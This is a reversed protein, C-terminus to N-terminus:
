SSIFEFSIFIFHEKIQWKCVYLIVVPVSSHKKEGDGM